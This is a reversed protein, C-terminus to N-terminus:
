TDKKKRAKGVLDKMEQESIPKIKSKFSLERNYPASKNNTKYLTLSAEEAKGQRIVVLKVVGTKNLENISTAIEDETLYRYSNVFKEFNLQKKLREAEEKKASEKHQETLTLFSSEIYSALTKMASLVSSTFQAQILKTLVVYKTKDVEDSNPSFHFSANTELFIIQPEADTGQKAIFFEGLKKHRLEIPTQNSGGHSISLSLHISGEDPFFTKTTTATFDSGQINFTQKAADHNDSNWARAETCAIQIIKDIQTTEKQIDKHLKFM